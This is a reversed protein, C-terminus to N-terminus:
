VVNTVLVDPDEPKGGLTGNFYSINFSGLVSRRESKLYSSASWGSNNTAQVDVHRHDEFSELVPGRIITRASHYRDRRSNRRTHQEAALETPIPKKLPGLSLM